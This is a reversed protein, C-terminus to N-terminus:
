SEIQMAYLSVLLFDDHVHVMHIEGDSKKVEKQKEQNWLGWSAM